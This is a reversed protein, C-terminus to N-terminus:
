MAAGTDANTLTITSLQPFEIPLLTVSERKGDLLFGLSGEDVKRVGDIDRVVNFVDSWVIEGVIAGTADKLNAGFDIDTNKTGDALQAAFFDALAARINTAVTAEVAGKALYLRAAVPVSKFPAALTEYSFTITSPKNTDIESAIAALIGSSPTAPAIRGSALKSGQAVVYIKGTNEQIGAYENSTVMIARAVGSVSEAVTEFDERTVTRTLVRLSAPAKAQAESLSMRDTGGSTAADNTVSAPAPDGSTFFLTEEIISIKDKEVNGEAGGGVKYSISIVGSPIAGTVGNGFKIHARDFEDVYVAYVLDTSTYGLFSTVETYTGETASVEASGDLYPSRSLVIEQNPDDTSDFDEDPVDEAQEVPVSVSLQGATLTKATTTRFRTPNEPDSTRLITGVPIEMNYASAVPVSVTVDGTASAAGTLRFDILQGLRIASIRETLTPWFAQAAQTDQYFHLIDGVHAMLEVLINGFNAVNFDTWDPFVSRVVDQLRLRLSNFDRDSYDLTTQSIAM